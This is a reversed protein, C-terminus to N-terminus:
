LDIKFQLERNIEGEVKGLIYSNGQIAKGLPSVGQIYNINYRYFFRKSIDSLENASSYFYDIEDIGRFFRDEDCKLKEIVEDASIDFNPLIMTTKLNKIKPKGEIFYALFYSTTKPLDQNLFYGSNTNKFKNTKQAGKLELYKLLTYISAPSDIELNKIESFNFSEIDAISKYDHFQAADPKLYHSFDVSALVFSNESLNENLFEAIKSLKEESIGSRLIIPVIKTNPFFKKIFTVEASISHEKEFVKEDFDALAEDKLKNIILSEPEVYGYTTKYPWNSVIAPKGIEYHNPGIIVIVEPQINKSLEQYYAAILSKVLLHHPAIGGIVKGTLNEDSKYKEANTFTEVWYKQDRPFQSYHEQSLSESATLDKEDTCGIFNILIIFLLIFKKM